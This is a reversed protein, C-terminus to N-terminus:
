GHTEDRRRTKADTVFRGGGAQLEALRRALEQRLSVGELLAEDDGSMEATRIAEEAKRIEAEIRSRRVTRIYDDCLRDGDDEPFEALALESLLERAASDTLGDLVAAADVVRGGAALPLVSEAVLRAAPHEFDAATLETAVRGAPTGGSLALTLLGKQAELAAAAEPAQPARARRGPAPSRDRRGGRSLRADECARRLAGRGISMADSLKELMLDAKIPDSVGAITEILKRAVDEREESTGPSECAIMFDIFDLGESIRDRLAEAGEDRLYSDPDAGGPLTVVRVKLDTQILTEAARAAAMIGADDGDYVVFVTDAYRGIVAAQEQTLATGSSAVVNQFGSQFLTVLDMYGEVLIAERSARLAPRAQALGYVYRGKHYVRTEPSNLYKPVADGLARAGFGVARDSSALLPFVIRDRFRDYYGSGDDRPVVLGAEELVGPSVGKSRAARILGDWGPPAYGIRFTEVTEPFLGRREIYKRAPNGQAGRLSATFYDIALRNARYIPDERDDGASRSEPIAIGARSALDRVADLFGVKDYEMVFSIVNGGVGCGFCHYIQREPNINFSPSKERHFPCLAKYNRGAKRVEIRESIVDVIDNASRIEDILEEPIRRAM